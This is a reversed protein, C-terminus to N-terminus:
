ISAYPSITSVPVMEGKEELADKKIVRYIVYLTLLLTLIGNILLFYGSSLDILLSTLFPTIAFGTGYILILTGTAPIIQHSELHDNAHAICQSYLGMSFCGFIAVASYIAPLSLTGKMAFFIAPIGAFLSTAALIKRRDYRDSLLALPWQILIGSGLAVASLKATQGATLGEALGYISVAGFFSGHIMGSFFAGIVAVPVLTYLKAVNIREVQLFEPTQTATLLIPIAAISLLISAVLFFFVTTIDGFNLLYMGLVPGGWSLITYVALIKGRSKNSALDNLWSETVIMLGATCVGMVLREITWLWPDILLLHSQIKQIWCFLRRLPRSM